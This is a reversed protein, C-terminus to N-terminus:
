NINDSISMHNLIHTCFWRSYSHSNPKYFAPLIYTADRSTFWQFRILTNQLFSQYSQLLHIQIKSVLYIPFINLIHTVRWHLLTQASCFWQCADLFHTVRWNKLLDSDSIPITSCADLMHTTRWHKSCILIVLLFPQVHLWSTLQEGTNSCILVM